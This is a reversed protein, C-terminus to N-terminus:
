PKGSREARERRGVEERARGGCEVSWGIAIATRMAREEDTKTECGIGM